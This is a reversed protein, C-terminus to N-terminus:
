IKPGFLMMLLLGLGIGIGGVIYFFARVSTRQRRDKRDTEMIEDPSLRLRRLDTPSVYNGMLASEPNAGGVLMTLVGGVMLGVGYDWLGDWKSVMGFVVVVALLLIEGGSVLLISDRVPHAEFNDQLVPKKSM